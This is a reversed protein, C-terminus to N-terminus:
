LEPPAAPQAARNRRRRRRLLLLTYIGVVGITLLVAGYAAAGWWALRSTRRAQRAGDDTLVSTALMPTAVGESLSPTWSTTTGTSAASPSSGNSTMAGPLVATVTLHLGEEVPVTVVESLPVKGLAGVLADDAFAALGGDLQVTGQFSSIVRAFSTSRALTLDRLPGQPGSLESLIRTGEAPTRFPKTLTLVHDATPGDVHWGAAVADDLSLETFLEPRKALLEDDPRARVSITGSGDASMTATVEVDLRCGTLVLALGALLV